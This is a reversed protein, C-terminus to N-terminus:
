IYRNIIKKFINGVNNNPIYKNYDLTTIYKVIFINLIIFLFMLEATALQNIEPILSLPFENFRESIVAVASCPGTNNLNNNLSEAAPQGALTDNSLVHLSEILKQSSKSGSSNNANLIQGMYLFSSILALIINILVFKQLYKIYKYESFQFRDSVFLTIGFSFVTSIILVIASTLNTDRYYV